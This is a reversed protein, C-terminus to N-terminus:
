YGLDFWGVWNWCGWYRKIGFCKFIFWNVLVELIWWKSLFYGLVIVIFDFIIIELFVISFFFVLLM